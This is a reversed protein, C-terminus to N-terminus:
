RGSRAPPNQQSRAAFDILKGAPEAPAANSGARPTASAFPLPRAPQRGPGPASPTAAPTVTAAIGQRAPDAPVGTAPPTRPPQPPRAPAERRVAPRAVPAPSTVRAEPTAPGEGDSGVMDQLERVIAMTTEAQANLEESSAANEEATAATQQTVTEMQQLAQVIQQCSAFQQASAEDVGQVIAKVQLVTRTIEEIAASVDHVRDDGRRSADLAREILATTHQAAAASRQALSRVEDAVVAFGAGAEGARAAEVAANLALMNTQFAIEDVTRIIKSVERSSEAIGSMSSVLDDLAGRAHQVLVDASTVLRAADDARTSTDRTTAAMEEMAASTEELTAAQETAGGSLSQASSSVHGAASSLQDASGRLEGSMRALSRTAGRVLLMVLVAAALAAGLVGLMLWESQRGAADAEATASAFERVQAQLIADAMAANERMLAETKASLRQMTAPDGVSATDDHCAACGSEWAKFGAALRDLSQRDRDARLRQRLDQSKAHATTLDGAVRRHWATVADSDGSTFAVMIARESAFMAVNLEDLEAALRMRQAADATQQQTRRIV